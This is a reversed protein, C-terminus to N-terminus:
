STNVRKLLGSDSVTSVETPSTIGSGSSQSTHAM